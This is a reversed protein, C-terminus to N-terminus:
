FVSKKFFFVEGLDEDEIMEGKAVEVLQGTKPSNIAIEAQAPTIVSSVPSVSGNPNDSLQAARSLLQAKAATILQKTKAQRLLEAYRLKIMIKLRDYM